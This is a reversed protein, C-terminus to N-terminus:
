RKHKAPVSTCAIAILILLCGAIEHASPVQHVFVATLLVAVVIELTCLLSVMAAPICKLAAFFAGYALLSGTFAQLTMLSFLAPTFNSLDGWGYWFSKFGFLMWIGVLNSFFLLKVEDMEHSLSFRRTVLAQGAMGFVALLGWFVGTFSINRFAAASGGMGIYVGCIILVGALCQLMTPREHTIYLSGILAALPFTYHIILAEAVSLYELSTLFGGGAFAVSLTGSIIYFRLHARDLRFAGRGRLALLWVGTATLTFFSRFVMVTMLDIGAGALVKAVPSIIGWCVAASLALAAGRWYSNLKM